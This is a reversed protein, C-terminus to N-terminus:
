AFQIGKNREDKPGIARNSKIRQLLFIIFVFFFFSFLKKAFHHLYRLLFLLLAPFSAWNSVVTIKKEEKKKREKILVCMTSSDVKINNNKKTIHCWLSQHLDNYQETITTTTTSTTYSHTNTILFMKRKFGDLLLLFFHFSIFLFPSYFLNIKFCCLLRFPFLQPIKKKYKKNLKELQHLKCSFPFM